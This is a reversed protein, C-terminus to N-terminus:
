NQGARSRATELDIPQGDQTARIQAQGMGREQLQSRLRDAEEFTSFKGVTYTTTGDANRGLDIASNAALDLIIRVEETPIKEKYTGLFVSFLIEPPTAQVTAAPDP